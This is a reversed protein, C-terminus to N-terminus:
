VTPEGESTAAPVPTELLHEIAFGVLFIGSLPVVIYLYGTKWQLVPTVQGSGLTESVLLFGGYCFAFGAFTVVCLEAVIAALRRAAPHFQSVFYDIGLHGRERFTLAAGLLSVWVLLYVGLEETWDSPRVGPWYRSIVGWLVVIVLVVFLTVTTVELARAILRWIQLTHRM